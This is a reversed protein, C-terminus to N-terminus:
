KNVSYQKDLLSKIDSFLRESVPDKCQITGDIDLLFTCPIQRVCYIEAVQHNTDILQIGPLQDEDCATQWAQNDTDISVGLIEFGKDSFKKYAELVTKNNQRCPQCWSAWFDLLVVKGRLDSLNITKGTADTLSFDPAVCGVEIRKLAEYMPRSREVEERLAKAYKHQPINVTFDTVLSDIEEFELWQLSNALLFLGFVNDKNDYINRRIYALQEEQINRVEELIVDRRDIDNGVAHLENALQALRAQEPLNRGFNDLRDNTESGTVEMNEIDYIDGNIVVQDNGALILMEDGQQTTLIVCEPLDLSVVNTFTFQGNTVQATDVIYRQLSEDLISLYIKGDPINAIHGEVNLYQRQCATLSALAALAIVANRM